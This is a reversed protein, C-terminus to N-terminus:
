KNVQELVTGAKIYDLLLSLVKQVTCALVHIAVVLIYSLRCDGEKQVVRDEEEVLCVGLALDLKDAGDTSAGKLLLGICLVEESEHGHQAVDSVLVLIGLLCYNSHNTIFDVLFDLTQALKVADVLLGSLVDLLYM